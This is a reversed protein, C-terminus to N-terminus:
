KKMSTNRWKSIPNRGYEGFIDKMEINEGFELDMIFTADLTEQYKEVTRYEFVDSKYTKISFIMNLLTITFLGIFAFIIIIIFFASYKKCM